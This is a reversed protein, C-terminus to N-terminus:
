DAIVIIHFPQIGSVQALIDASAWIGLFVMLSGFSHFGQDIGDAGGDGQVALRGNHRGPLSIVLQRLGLLQQDPVVVGQSRRLRSQCLQLLRVLVLCCGVPYLGQDVGNARNGQVAFLGDPLGPRSVISQRIELLLQHAIVLLQHIGLAGQGIQLHGMCVRSGGVLGRSIVQSGQALLM